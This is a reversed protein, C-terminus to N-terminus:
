SRFLHTKLDRKFLPYSETTRLKVPLSNWQVAGRTDFSKLGFATTRRPVTKKKLDNPRRARIEQETFVQLYSPVTIPNYSLNNRTKLKQGNMDELKLMKKM